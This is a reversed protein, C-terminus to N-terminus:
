SDSCTPFTGGTWKEAITDFQGDDLGGQIADNVAEMLEPEDKPLGVAFEACDTGDESIAFGDGEGKQIWDLALLRGTVLVECRGDKLGAFSEATGPYAQVSAATGIRTVPQEGNSSGAVVCVTKGDIDEPSNIGSVDEPYVAIADDAAYPISFDIVEKREETVRLGSMAADFQGSQIGPVIGKFDLIRWEVDVGLGDAIIKAWDADIGQYGGSSDPFITPSNNGSSGISLTGASEIKTLANSATDGSADDSTTSCGVLSILTAAIIATTAFKKINKM